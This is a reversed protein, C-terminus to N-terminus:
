KTSDYKLFLNDLNYNLSALRRYRAFIIPKEVKAGRLQSNDLNNLTMLHSLSPSAKLLLMDSKQM